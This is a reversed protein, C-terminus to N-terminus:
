ETILFKDLVEENGAEYGIVGTAIGSYVIMVENADKPSGVFIGLILVEDTGNHLAQIEM